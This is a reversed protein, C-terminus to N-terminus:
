KLLAEAEPWTPPVKFKIYELATKGSSDKLTKDAKNDLLLKLMKADKTSSAVTMLPTKGDKNPANVNAGGKILLELMESRGDDECARHLSTDKFNDETVNPDAKAALLVKVVEMKNKTVALMLATKSVWGKLHPYAGTTQEALKGNIDAGDVLAAKVKEVDGNYAADVLAGVKEPTSVKTPAAKAAPAAKGPAGTEKAPTGDKCGMSGCLSCSMLALMTMVSLKRM